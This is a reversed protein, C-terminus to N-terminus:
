GVEMPEGTAPHRLVRLARPLTKDGHVWCYSGEVRVHNRCRYGLCDTHTCRPLDAPANWVRARADVPLTM